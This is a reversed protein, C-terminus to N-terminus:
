PYSILADSVQKSATSVSSGRLDVAGAALAELAPATTPFEAFQVPCDLGGLEGAASLLAHYLGKSDGVRLTEDAQVNFALLLASVM